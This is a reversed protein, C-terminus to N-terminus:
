RKDLEDVFVAYVFSNLKEAIAAAVHLFHCCLTAEAVYLCEALCELSFHIHWRFLVYALNSLSVLPLKQM